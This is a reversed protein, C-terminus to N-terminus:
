ACELRSKSIIGTLLFFSQKQTGNEGNEKKGLKLPYIPMVPVPPLACKEKADSLSKNEELGGPTVYRRGRSERADEYVKSEVKWEEIM